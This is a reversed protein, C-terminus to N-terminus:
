EAESAGVLNFCATITIEHVYSYYLSQGPNIAYESVSIHNSLYFLKKKNEVCLRTRDVAFKRDAFLDAQALLSLKLRRRLSRRRSSM